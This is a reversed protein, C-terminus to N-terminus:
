ADLVQVHVFCASFAAAGAFRNANDARIALHQRQQRRDDCIATRLLPQIIHLRGHKGGCLVVQEPCNLIALTRSSSPKIHGQMTIHLAMAADQLVLIRVSCETCMISKPHVAARQLVNGVCHLM